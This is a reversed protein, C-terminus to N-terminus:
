TPNYLAICPLMPCFHTFATASSLSAALSLLSISPESPRRSVRGICERSYVHVNGARCVRANHAVCTREYM